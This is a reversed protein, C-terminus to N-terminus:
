PAGEAPDPNRAVMARHVEAPSGAGCLALASLLEGALIEVIREVGQQGGAALGWQVPRGILVARAGLALAKLVDTGRRVGGDVLIELRGDAAQVVAPLADLSAIAGDLARGGHNSVIVARAGAARALGVDAAHLIGKLILPLRTIGRLWELSAWTLSADITLDRGAPVNADSVGPPLEFPTRALDERWFTIPADVTLVIAEFGAAEARAVLDRTLSRDAFCYLQLWRRHGVTAVDEMTVSSFTSLVQVTGVARAARATAVEGDPHSIRHSATPAFLIPLSADAGLVSTELGAASVDRLVRPRFMWRRFAARNARTTWGTGAWGAIVQYTAPPLRERALAEFEDVTLLRALEAATLDARPAASSM